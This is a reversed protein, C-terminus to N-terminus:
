ECRLSRIPDVRAARLAPPLTALVTALLMLGVGAGLSLPDLPRVGYLLSAILCTVLVVVGM